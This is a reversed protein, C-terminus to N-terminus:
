SQDNLLRDRFGRDIPEPGIWLGFYAVAFDAGPVAGLRQQNLWLETGSGPDYTLIYRDGPQVDRFFRYFQQLREALSQYAATSLTERLLKESSSSFDEAKFKRFYSLELRKPLDTTWDQANVDAPLYFAGAYLDFLVWKLVATGTLSLRTEGLQYHDTFRVGKIEAAHISNVCLCVTILVFGTMIKTVRKKM